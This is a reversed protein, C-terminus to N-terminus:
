AARELERALRTLALQCLALYPTAPWPVGFGIRCRNEGLPDVRHRTAALGGVRWSWSQGEVYESVVFPLSPGLPTRVRGRAGPRLLPRDIEVSRVSPGWASWCGTDVLLDWAERAPAEIQRTAWVDGGPQGSTQQTANLARALGAAAEDGLRNFALQLGPDVIRWVGSLELRAEYTLRSGSPLGEVLVEDRSRLSETVAELVIRHPRELTRIAYELAISRGAFRTVVSFRSGRELVDGDLRRAREVGPDWREVNSFDAMYPFVDAPTDPVELVCRCLAM